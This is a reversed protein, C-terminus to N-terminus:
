NVLRTTTVSVCQQQGEGCTKSECGYHPALMHVIKRRFSSASRFIHRQVNNCRSSKQTNYM